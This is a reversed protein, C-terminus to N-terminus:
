QPEVMKEAPPEGPQQPGFTQELAEILHDEQVGLETAYQEVSINGVQTSTTKQSPRSTSGAATNTPQANSTHQPKTSNHPQKWQHPYKANDQVRKLSKSLEVLMELANESPLVIGCDLRPLVSSSQGQSQPGKTDHPKYSNNQKHGQQYTPKFGQHQYNKNYNGQYSKQGYQNYHKKQFQPRTGQYNQQYGQGQTQARTQVEETAFEEQVQPEEYCTEMVNFTCMPQTVQHEREFVLTMDFAERLSRPGYQSNMKKLLKKQLPPILTGAFFMMEGNQNQDDASIRNARKHIVEYRAIYLRAQEGPRQQMDRLVKIAQFTTPANSFCRMVEEKLAEDDVTEINALMTMVDGDARNLLEIRLDRGTTEVLSEIRSLWVACDEKNTGDFKPVAAFLADYKRQETANALANFADAQQQQASVWAQHHQQQNNAMTQNAQALQIMTRSLQSMHSELSATSTTSHAGANANFDFMGPASTPISHASGARSSPRSGDMRSGTTYVPPAESHPVRSSSTSAANGDQELAINQLRDNISPVTTPETVLPTHTAAARPQQPPPPPPQFNGTQASSSTSAADAAAKKAEAAKAKKEDKIRKRCKEAVHGLKGCHSCKNEETRQECFKSSHDKQKCHKCHVKKRCKETKHNKRGCKRCPDSTKDQSHSSNSANDTNPATQPAALPALPVRPQPASPEVPAVTPPAPIDTRVQTTIASSAPTVNQVMRPTADPIPATPTAVARVPTPRHIVHGQTSQTDLLQMGQSHTVQSPPHTGGTSPPRQVPRFGITPETSEGVTSTKQQGTESLSSKDLARFTFRRQLPTRQQSSPTRPATRTSQTSEDAGDPYMEAREMIRLIEGVEVKARATLYDTSNTQLQNQTPLIEPYPAPPLGLVSRHYNDAVAVTEIRRFCDKVKEMDADRHTLISARNAPDVSILDEYARFISSYYDTADVFDLHIRHRDQRSLMSKSFHRSVPASELWTSFADTIQKVADQRTNIRCARDAAHEQLDIDLAVLDFPVIQATYPIMSFFNDYIAYLAYTEEVVLYWNTDFFENLYPIQIRVGPTGDPLAAPQQHAVQSLRTNQGDPIFRDEQQSQVSSQTKQFSPTDPLQADYEMMYQHAAVGLDMQRMQEDTLEDDSYKLTMGHIQSNGSVQSINENTHGEHSSSEKSSGILLDPSATLSDPRRTRSTSTTVVFPGKNASIQINPVLPTTARSPPRTSPLSGHTESLASGPRSPLKPTGPRSSPIQLHAPSTTKEAGNTTNISTGLVGNSLLNVQAVRTAQTLRSVPPPSRMVPVMPTQSAPPSVANREEMVDKYSPPSTKCRKPSLPKPPAAKLGSISRKVATGKKVKSAVVKKSSAFERQTGKPPDSM